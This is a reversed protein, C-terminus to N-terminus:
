FENVITVSTSLTNKKDYSKLRVDASALTELEVENRFEYPVFRTLVSLKRLYQFTIRRLISVYQFELTFHCTGPTDCDIWRIVFGVLNCWSCSFAASCCDSFNEVVSLVDRGFGLDDM